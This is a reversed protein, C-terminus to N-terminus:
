PKDKTPKPTPKPKRTPQPPPENTPQPPPENTPQPPPENTIQPPVDTPSDDLLKTPTASILLGPTATQTPTVSGFNPTPTDLPNVPLLPMDAMRYAADYAVLVGCELAASRQVASDMESLSAANLITMLQNRLEGAWRALNQTCTKVNEGNVIINRSAGSANVAYDAQAYVAQIYGLHDANLLLGYGDGLDIIQKDGNWDKHGGALLNMLAEANEKTGPENGNEYNNLIERASQEM